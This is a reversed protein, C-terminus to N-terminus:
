FGALSGTLGRWTQRFLRSVGVYLAGHNFCVCEGPYPREDEPGRRLLPVPNEQRRRGVVRGESERGSASVPLGEGPEDLLVLARDVAEADAQEGVRFLGAVGCLLGEGAGVGRELAVVEILREGRPDEADGPVEAQVRKAAPDRRAGPELEVGRVIVPRGPFQRVGGGLPGVLGDLLGLGPLGQLAGHRGERGVVALHHVEEV